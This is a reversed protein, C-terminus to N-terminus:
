WYRCRSALSKSPFHHFCGGSHLKRKKRSPPAFVWCGDYEDANSRSAISTPAEYSQCCHSDRPHQTRRDDRGGLTHPLQSHGSANPGKKDDDGHADGLRIGSTRNDKGVLDAYQIHYFVLPLDMQLQFAGLMVLRESVVIDPVLQAEVDDGTPETDAVVADGLCKTTLLPFDAAVKLATQAALAFYLVIRSQCCCGDVWWVIADELEGSPTSESCGERRKATPEGRRQQNSKSTAIDESLCDFAPRSYEGIM